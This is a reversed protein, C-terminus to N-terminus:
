KKVRMFRRRASVGVLGVLGIGLLLMTSPEPIPAATVVGSRVALAYYDSTKNTIGTYGHAFSVGWVWLPNDPSETNTWYWNNKVDPFLALDPNDSNTINNVPTGGGM